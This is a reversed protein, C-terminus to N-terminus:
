VGSLYKGASVYLLLICVTCGSVATELLNGWRKEKKKATM